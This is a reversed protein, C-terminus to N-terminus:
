HEQTNGDQGYTPDLEELLKHNTIRRIGNKLLGSNFNIVLGLKLRKAKLFKVLNLTTYDQLTESCDVVLAVSNLIVFDVKLANPFELSKYEIRSTENESYPYEANSLESKLCDLYIQKDLGPGISKHIEIAMGILAHAIENETNLDIM